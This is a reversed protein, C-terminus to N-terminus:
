GSAEDVVVLMGGLRRDAFATLLDADVNHDSAQEAHKM